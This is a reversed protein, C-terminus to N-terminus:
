LFWNTFPNIKNVPISNNVYRKTIVRSNKPWKLEITRITKKKPNIPTLVKTNTLYIKTGSRLSLDKPFLILRYWADNIIPLNKGPIESLSSLV